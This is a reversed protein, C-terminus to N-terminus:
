DKNKCIQGIHCAETCNNGRKKCGCRNSDCRSQLQLIWGRFKLRKCGTKAKKKKTTATPNVYDMLFQYFPLPKEICYFILDKVDAAKAPKIPLFESYAPAANEFIEQLDFKLGERFICYNENPDRGMDGKRVLTEGPKFTISRVANSGTAGSKLIPQVAAAYDKVTCLETGAALLLNDTFPHNM